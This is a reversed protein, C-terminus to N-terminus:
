FSRVSLYIHPRGKEKEGELNDGDDGLINRLGSQHTATHAAALSEGGDRWDELLSEGWSQDLGAEEVAALNRSWSEERSLGAETARRTALCEGRWAWEWTRPCLRDWFLGWKAGRNDLTRYESCPPCKGINKSRAPGKGLYKSLFSSSSSSMRITFKFCSYYIFLILFVSFNISDEVTNSM